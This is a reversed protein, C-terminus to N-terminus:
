IVAGAGIGANTMGTGLSRQEPECWESVAKVAAPLFAAEGMGLLFRVASFSIVGQAAAQAMSALSWWIMALAFGTRTGLRDLMRGAFPHLLAYALLFSFVIYSYQSGSLHFQQRIHPAAVSLSQRDLYNIVAATFLLALLGKRETM